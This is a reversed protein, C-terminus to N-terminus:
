NYIIEIETCEMPHQEQNKVKTKLERACREVKLAYRYIMVNVFLSCILLHISLYLM